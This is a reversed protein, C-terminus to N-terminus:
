IYDTHRPDWDLWWLRTKTIAAIQRQGEKLGERWGQVRANAAAESLTRKAEHLEVLKERISELDDAIEAAEKEYPKM